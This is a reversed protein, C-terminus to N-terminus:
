LPISGCQLQFSIGNEHSVHLTPYRPLEAQRGPALTRRSVFLNELSSSDAAEIDRQQFSCLV